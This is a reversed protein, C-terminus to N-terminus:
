IDTRTGVQAVVILFFVKRSEAAVRAVLYEVMGVVEAKKAATLAAQKALSHLTQVRLSTRDRLQVMLVLM